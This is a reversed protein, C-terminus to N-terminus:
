IFVKDPKYPGNKVVYMECPEIVTIKHGGSVVMFLQGATLTLSKFFKKDAGYLDIKIKGKIMVVCEQSRNVIRKVPKHIHAKIQFKKPLKITLVGLYEQPNTQPISGKSFSSIKIGVLTKKYYYKKM